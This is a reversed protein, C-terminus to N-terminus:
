FNDLIMDFRLGSSGEGRGVLKRRGYWTVVKGNYWRTRQYTGKVTAGSRPVEEEHVFMPDPQLDNAAIGARLLPTRPRIQHAPFVEAIRPMSARQFVIERNSGAKHVPIFPIWNESVTNGLMYKLQPKTIGAKEIEEPTYPPIILQDAVPASVESEELQQFLNVVNAATEYGDIGGGLGNPVRSEIAWVMNAMEDRIFKVKEVEDSEHVKVAAPPLFMRHDFDSPEYESTSVSVAYLNWGKWEAGDKKHAAEVFTKDGFTDTVVIGEVETLSGTPLEYPISLWDNSYKLAYQSVLIKAVDTDTTKLNGLDISGDEMQWWRSNPMGAFSAETPILSLVERSFNGPNSETFEESKKNFDFAFWDLHGHFYEEAHLTSATGNGEDVRVDFSYELQENKWCDSNNEQPINLLRGVYELWQDVASQLVAEHTKKVLQFPLPTDELILATVDNATASFYKWLMAGNLARGMLAQIFSQAELLSRERAAVSAANPSLNKHFEQESFAFREIFGKHYEGASYDVAAQGNEDLLQLFKKGIRVSTKHDIEPTIREVRTELPLQDNIPDFGNSGGRFHTLRVSNLAVKAFVASGTDEGQFEGFQYQRALMWLPDHICAAMAEDLEEQRPRAEIRNYARFPECPEYFQTM